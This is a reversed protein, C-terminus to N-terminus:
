RLRCVESRQTRSMALLVHALELCPVCDKDLAERICSRIDGDAINGDDLVIHLCCGVASRAYIGRKMTMAAAITPRM